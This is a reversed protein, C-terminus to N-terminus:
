EAKQDKPHIVVKSGEVVSRNERLFITMKTGTVQYGKESAVPEGLLVVKDEKQYYFAEKSRAKKDGQQLEVNGTAHIMKIENESFGSPDSLLGASSADETPAGKSAFVVEAHEASISLDGQKMVVDGEFVARHELNKVTM